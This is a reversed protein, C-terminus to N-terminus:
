GEDRKSVTWRLNQLNKYRSFQVSDPGRKPSRHPTLKSDNGIVGLQKRDNKESYFEGNTYYTIFGYLKDRIRICCM